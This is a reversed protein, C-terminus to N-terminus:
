MFEASSEIIRWVLRNKLFFTIPLDTFAYEAENGGGMAEIGYLGVNNVRKKWYTGSIEGTLVSASNIKTYWESGCMFFPPPMGAQITKTYETMSTEGKKKGM